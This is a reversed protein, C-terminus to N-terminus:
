QAATSHTSPRHQPNLSFQTRLQAITVSTLLRKGTTVPPAIKSQVKADLDAPGRLRSPHNALIADLFEGQAIPRQNLAVSIGGLFDNFWSDWEKDVKNHRVVIVSGENREDPADGFRKDGAANRVYMLAEETTTRGPTVNFFLAKGHGATIVPMLTEFQAQDVFVFIYSEFINVRQLNPAYSEPPQATPEKGAPPLFAEPKPWATDFDQELPSANEEESLDAPTASYVLADVYPEDVIYKGNILAQLGKATNRKAAVVHTTSETIYELITKIDFQELRDRKPKLPDQKKM